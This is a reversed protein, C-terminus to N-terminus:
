VINVPATEQLFIPEQIMMWDACCFSSLFPTQSKEKWNNPSCYRPLKNCAHVILSARGRLFLSLRPRNHLLGLINQLGICAENGPKKEFTSTTWSNIICWAYLLGVKQCSYACFKITVLIFGFNWDLVSAAIVGRLLECEESTTSFNLDVAQLLGLIGPWM